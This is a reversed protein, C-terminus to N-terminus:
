ALGDAKALLALFFGEAGTKHPWLTVYGQKADEKLAPDLGLLKPCVKELLDDMPVKKFDPRRKLFAELQDQNEEKNLTCTSYLLYGKTSVLDGARDLLRAQTELLDAQNELSFRYRREPKGGLLGLASCPGDLLVRDFTEGAEPWPSTGDHVLTRVNEIALRKLEEDLLQLRHPHLDSATLHDQPRLDHYYITKGGPAACYDLFDMPQHDASVHALLAAPLMAAEGQVLGLGEQWAEMDRVSGRLNFIRIVDEQYAGPKTKYLKQLEQSTAEIVARDGRLRFSLGRDERFARSLAILEEEGDLQASLVKLLDQNFGTKAELTKPCLVKEKRLINRLMGNVFGKASRLGVQPCLKASENVAASEPVASHYLQWLGMRLIMLVPPDLKELPKKSYAQLYQDYLYLNDLTGYVLATAFAKDRGSLTSARLAEDLAL